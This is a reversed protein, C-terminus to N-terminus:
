CSNAKASAESMAMEYTVYKRVMVSSPFIWTAKMFPLVLTGFVPMNTLPCVEIGLSSNFAALSRASSTRFISVSSSIGLRCGM